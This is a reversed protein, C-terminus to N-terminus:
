NRMVLVTVDGNAGAAKASMARGYKTNVAATGAAIGHGLGATIASTVIDDGLNVIGTDCTVTVVGFSTAILDDSGDAIAGILVCGAVKTSVGAAPTAFANATAASVDVLTKAVSNGGTKNTMPVVTVGLDGATKGFSINVGSPFMRTSLLGAPAAGKTATFYTLDTPVNAATTVTAIGGFVVQLTGSRFDWTSATLAIVNELFKYSTNSDIYKITNNAGILNTSFTLAANSHGGDQTCFMTMNVFTNGSYLNGAAGFVAPGGPTYIACQSRNEIAANDLHIAAVTGDAGRKCNLFQTGSFSGYYIIETDIKIRGCRPPLTGVGAATDYAITTDAAGINAANNVQYTLTNRAVGDITNGAINWSEFYARMVDGNFNRFLNGSLQGAGSASSTGFPSQTDMNWGEVIRASTPSDVECGVIQIGPVTPRTTTEPYIAWHSWTACSVFKCDTIKPRACSAFFIVCQANPNSCGVFRCALIECDTSNISVHAATMDTIVTNDAHALAATEIHGRLNVNSIVLAGSVAGGGSSYALVEDDIRAYGNARLGGNTGTDWPINLTGAGIAGSNVLGTGSTVAGIFACALAVCRAGDLHLSKGNFLLYEFAVDSKQCTINVPVSASASAEGVIRQVADGAAITIDAADTSAIVFISVRSAARAAEITAYVNDVGVNPDGSNVISDYYRNSAM